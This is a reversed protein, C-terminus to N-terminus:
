FKHENKKYNKKYVFISVIYLIYLLINLNTNVLRFLKGFSDLQQEKIMPYMVFYVMDGLNFIFLGSAIWFFYNETLSDELNGTFQEYLYICVAIIAFLQGAVLVYNHLKYFPAIIFFLFALANFIFFAIKTFKKLLIGGHQYFLLFYFSYEVPITFNYFFVNSHGASKIYYGTVDVIIVFVLFFPLWRLKSGKLINWFILCVILASFEIFHIPSVSM